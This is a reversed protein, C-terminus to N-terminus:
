CPLEAAVATLLRIPLLRAVEGGGTAIVEADTEGTFLRRVRGLESVFATPRPNVCVRVEVATLSTLPEKDPLARAYM